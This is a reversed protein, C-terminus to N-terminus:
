PQFSKRPRYKGSEQTQFSEWSAAVRFNHGWTFWLYFIGARKTWEEFGNCLGWGVQAKKKLYGDCWKEMEAELGWPRGFEWGAVVEQLGKLFFYWRELSILVMNM